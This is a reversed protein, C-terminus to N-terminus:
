VAQDITLDDYYGFNGSSASSAWGGGYVTMVGDVTPTGTITIEEWTNIAATMYVGTEAIGDIEFDKFFLGVNIDTRARRVWAKVTVLKGAEVAFKALEFRFPASATRGAVGFTNQMFLRWAYGASHTVSNQSSVEAWPVIYSHLNPDGNIRTQRM